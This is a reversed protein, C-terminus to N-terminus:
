DQLRKLGEVLNISSNLNLNINSLKLLVFNKRSTHFIKPCVGVCVCVCVHM